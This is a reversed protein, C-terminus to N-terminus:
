WIIGSLAFQSLRYIVMRKEKGRNSITNSKGLNYLIERSSLLQEATQWQTRDLILSSLAQWMVSANHRCSSGSTSNHDHGGSWHRQQEEILCCWFLVSKWCLSELHSSLASPIYVARWCTGPHGLATQLWHPTMLHPFCLMWKVYALIHYHEHVSTSIHWKHCQILLASVQM